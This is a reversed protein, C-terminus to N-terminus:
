RIKKSFFHHSFQAMTLVFIDKSGTKLLKLIKQTDKAPISSM